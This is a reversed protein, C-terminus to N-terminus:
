KNSTYEANIFLIEQSLAGVSRNSGVLKNPDSTIKIVAGRPLVFEGQGPQTSYDDIYMGMADKKVLIQLIKAQKTTSPDQGALEDLVVSPDLSGSRFTKFRIKSGLKLTAIDFSSDLGVYILFDDPAGVKNMCSDLAAVLGPVTDQASDMQLQDAPVMSPLSMLKRNITEPDASFSEIASLEKEDYNDSGYYDILSAHTQDTQPKMNKTYDGIDDGSVANFTNTKIAKNFPILKDNQIIHTVQGTEPNKYRGFGAYVLGLRKAETSADSIPEVMAGSFDEYIFESFKKM